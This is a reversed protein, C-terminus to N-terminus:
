EFPRFHLVMERGVMGKPPKPLPAARRIVRISMADFVADGSSHELEIRLIKGARDLIVMVSSKLDADAYRYVEPLSYYHAVVRQVERSFETLEQSPVLGQDSSSQSSGKKSEMQTQNSRPSSVEEAHRREKRAKEKLLRRLAEEKKLAMRSAKQSDQLGRGGKKLTKKKVTITHDRVGEKLDSKVGGQSSSGIKQHRTLQPLIKRPVRIEVDERARKLTSIPAKEWKLGVELIDLTRAPPKRSSNSLHTSALLAGHGLLSCLIFVGVGLPLPREEGALRPTEVPM